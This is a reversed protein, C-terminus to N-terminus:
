AQPAASPLSTDTMQDPLGHPQEDPGFGDAVFLRDYAVIDITVRGDPLDFANAHHFILCPDIPM